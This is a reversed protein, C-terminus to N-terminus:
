NKLIGVAQGFGVGHGFRRFPRRAFRLPDRNIGCIGVVDGDAMALFLAEGTEDFRNRGVVWDDCLRQVFRFGERVSEERLAELVAPDLGTIKVIKLM